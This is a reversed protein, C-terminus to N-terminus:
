SEQDQKVINFIYDADGGGYAEVCEAIIAKVGDDTEPEQAAISLKVEDAILLDVSKDEMERELKNLNKAWTVASM